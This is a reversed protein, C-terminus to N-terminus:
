GTRGNAHELPTFRRGGAILHKFAYAAISGADTMYLVQPLASQYADNDNSKVGKMYGIVAVSRVEM